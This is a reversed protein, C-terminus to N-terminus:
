LEPARAHGRRDRERDSFNERSAASAGLLLAKTQAAADVM